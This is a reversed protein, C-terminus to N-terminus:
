HLGTVHPDPLNLPCADRNHGDQERQPGSPPGWRETQGKIAELEGYCQHQYYSNATLSLQASFFHTHASHVQSQQREGKVQSLLHCFSSNSTYMQTM